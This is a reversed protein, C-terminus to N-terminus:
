QFVGSKGPKRAIITAHAPPVPYGTSRPLISFGASRLVTRIQYASYLRLRHIEDTRRFLSGTRRYSTIDRVLWGKSEAAKVLVAWDETQVFRSALASPPQGPEAIDFACVGGPRLSRYVRRFLRSLSQRNNAPDFAYNLCEGISTVADCSPLDASLLSRVEFRAAPVRRRALEIMPPSIDIGLVDFGAAVLREAWVGSGCGLDVVLGREVGQRHLTEFLVPAASNVYATFGADHIFSLDVGYGGM